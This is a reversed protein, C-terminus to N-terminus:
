LSFLTGTVIDVDRPISVTQLFLDRQEPDRFTLFMRSRGIRNGDSWYWTSSCHLFLHQHRTRFRYRCCKLQNTGGKLLVVAPSGLVPLSQGPRQERQNDPDRLSQLTGGPDGGCSEEEVPYRSRRTRGAIGVPQSAVPNTPSRSRNRRTTRSRTAAAPTSAALPSSPGQKVPTQKPSVLTTNRSKTSQQRTFPVRRYCEPPTPPRQRRLGRGERYAKEKAGPPTVTAAAAAAAEEPTRPPQPGTPRTDWPGPPSERRTNPDSDSGSDSETAPGEESPDCPDGPERTDGPDSPDRSSHGPDRSVRSGSSDGTDAPGPFRIPAQQQQQQQQQQQRQREEFKAYWRAAWPSGSGPFRPPRIIPPVWVPGTAVISTRPGLGPRISRRRRGKSTETPRTDRPRKPPPTDARDTGPSAGRCRSAPPSVGHGGPPSAIRQQEPTQRGCSEPAPGGCQTAPVTSTVPLIPSFIQNKFKVEWQGTASYRKADVSFKIYYRRYGSEDVYYLGTHDCLGETKRWRENGDLHYISGWSVYRNANEPNEDYWVDVSSGHKKFCGQPPCLWLERSTDSLTWQEQAFDSEGLSQLIMQMEIAEKAKAQSVQLPPVKQFGISDVGSQRAAYFFIMEKRVLDWHRIQSQLSTQATEYLSLLEEQVVNLRHCIREM